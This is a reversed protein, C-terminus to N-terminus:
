HIFLNIWNYHPVTGLFMQRFRVRKTAIFITAFFAFHGRKRKIEKTSFKKTLHLIKRFLVRTYETSNSTTDITPYHAKAKWLSKQVCLGGFLWDVGTLHRNAASQDFKVRNYVCSCLLDCKVGWASISIPLMKKEDSHKWTIKWTIHSFIKVQKFM